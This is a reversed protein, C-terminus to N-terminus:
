LRERTYTTLRDLVDQKSVVKLGLHEVSISSSISALNLSIELNKSTLYSLIFTSISAEGAGTVDIPNDSVYTSWYSNNNSYGFVGKEGLTILITDAYTQKAIEICAKELGEKNIEIRKRLLYEAEQINPKIINCGQYETLDRKKTPDVFVKVDHKKCIDFIYKLLEDTVIGKGYDQVMLADINVIAKALIKKLQDQEKKNSEKRDESDLRIAQQYNKLVSTLVRTKITTRRYGSNKISLNEIKPYHSFLQNLKSGAEDGSYVAVLSSHGGLECITNSVNGAGGLYHTFDGELLVVPVPADMSIKNVRGYLYKDYILDGFVLIKKNEFKNIISEYEKYSLM